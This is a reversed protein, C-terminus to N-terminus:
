RLIRRAATWIKDTPKDLFRSLFSIAFTIDPRTSTALYMLGGILQRYLQRGKEMPTSKGGCQDMNLNELLKQTYKMQDIKIEYEERNINM